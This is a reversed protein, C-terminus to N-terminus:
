MCVLLVLSESSCAAKHENTSAKLLILWFIISYNYHMAKIIDGKLLSKFARTLGCGPCKIHFLIRFICSYGFIIKTLAFYIIIFIIVILNNKIDKILKNM